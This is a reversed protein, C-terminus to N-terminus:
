RLLDHVATVALLLLLSNQTHQVGQHWGVCRGGESLDKRELLHVKGDTVNRQM